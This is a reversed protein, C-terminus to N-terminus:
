IYNKLEAEIIARIQDDTMDGRIIFEWPYKKNALLHAVDYSYGHKDMLTLKELEHKLLLIDLETPRGKDWVGESAGDAGCNIGVLLRKGNKNKEEIYIEDYFTKGNCIWSSRHRSLYSDM